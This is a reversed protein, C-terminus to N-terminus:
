RNDELRKKKKKFKTIVPKNLEQVPEENLHAGSGTKKYFFKYAISALRQYGDQKPNIAIKYARDKLIKNSITRKSLYKSDSYAPNHPFCSKELNNKCTHRLDGLKQIRERHKTFPGYASYTFIPQRLHLEHIFKDGALIVQKQLM